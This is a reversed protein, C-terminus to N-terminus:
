QFKKVMDLYEAQRQRARKLAKNNQERANDIVEKLALSVKVPEGKRIYYTKGNVSYFDEEPENPDYMPIIVEVVEDKKTERPETAVTVEESVEDISKKGAM